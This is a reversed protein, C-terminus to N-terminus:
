VPYNSTLCFVMLKIIMMLAKASIHEHAIIGGDSGGVDIIVEDL